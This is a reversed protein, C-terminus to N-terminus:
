TLMMNASSMNIIIMADEHEILAHANLMVTNLNTPMRSHSRLLLWVVVVVNVHNGRERPSRTLAHDLQLSTTNSIFLTSTTTLITSAVRQALVAVVGVSSWPVVNIPSVILEL